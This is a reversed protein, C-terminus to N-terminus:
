GRMNRKERYERQYVTNASKCDDCRCGRRYITHSGHTGERPTNGADIVSKALHCRKCLLQCKELEKSIRDLPASIMILSIDYEKLSPDIHDFQLNDATGCKVCVGGLQTIFKNRRTKYQTKMYQNM